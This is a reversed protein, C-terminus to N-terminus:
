RLMATPASGPSRTGSRRARGAPARLGARAGGQGLQLVDADEGDRLEDRTVLPTMGTLRAFAEAAVAVPVMAGIPLRISPPAKGGARACLSLIEALTLNEGGLIYREGIRGRELALLHGDRWM